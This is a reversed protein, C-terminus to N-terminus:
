HIRQHRVDHREGEILEERLRFRLGRAFVVRTFNMMNIMDM